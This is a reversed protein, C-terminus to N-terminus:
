LPDLSAIQEALDRWDALNEENTQNVSQTHFFVVATFCACATLASLAFPNHFFRWIRTHAAPEDRHLRAARLVNDAFDPSLLSAAHAQRHAWLRTNQM